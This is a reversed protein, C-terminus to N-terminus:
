YNYKIHEHIAYKGPAILIHNDHGANQAGLHKDIFEGTGHIKSIPVWFAHYHGPEGFGGHKESGAYMHAMDADSSHISNHTTEITKKNSFNIMNPGKAHPNLLNPNDASIGRHLLVHLEPKGSELNNMNKMPKQQNHLIKVVNVKSTQADVENKFPSNGHKTQEYEPSGWNKVLAWQGNKILKIREM